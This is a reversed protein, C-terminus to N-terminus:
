LYAAILMLAKEKTHTGSGTKKKAEGSVSAGIYEGITVNNCTIFQWALRTKLGTM